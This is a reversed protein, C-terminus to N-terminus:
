FKARNDSSCRFSSAVLKTVNLNSDPKVQSKNRIWTNHNCSYHMRQGHAAKM